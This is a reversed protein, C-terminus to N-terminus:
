GTTGLKARRQENLASRQAALDRRNMKKPPQRKLNIVRILTLLKNLHWYQCEFPIGLEIMWYYILEATIVEKSPPRNDEKFWTATMPANMYEYIARFHAEQLRSYAEPPVEGSITMCKIYEIMESTTKEGNGLFAKLTISEWKSLSALSHELEFTLAPGEIFTGSEEDFLEAEELKIELM